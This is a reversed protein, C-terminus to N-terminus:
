LGILPSIKYPVVGCNNALLYRVCVLIGLAWFAFYYLGKNKRAYHIGFPIALISFIYFYAELRAFLINVSTMASMIIAFFTCCYFFKFERKEMEGDVNTRTRELLVLIAAQVILDSLASGSEYGIYISYQPWLSLFFTTLRRGFILTIAAFVIMAIKTKNNIKIKGIFYLGIFVVASTHFTTAFAVCILYNWFKKEIIYKSAWIIIAIAISHRPTNFSSCFFFLLVYLTMSFIPYPSRKRVANAIPFITIVAVVIFFWVYSVKFFAVAKILTFFGIEFHWNYFFGSAQQCYADIYAWYDTGVYYRIGSFIILYLCLFLFVSKGCTIRIMLRKKRCCAGFGDPISDFHGLFSVICALSLISLLVIYPYM